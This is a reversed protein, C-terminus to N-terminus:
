FNSIKESVWEPAMASDNRSFQDYLRSILINEWYKFHIRSATLKGKWRSITQQTLNATWFNDSSLHPPPPARLWRQRKNQLVESHGFRPRCHRQLRLRISEGPLSEQELSTVRQMIFPARKYSTERAMFIADYIVSTIILNAKMNFKHWM